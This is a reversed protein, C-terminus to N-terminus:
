CDDFIMSTSVFRAATAIGKGGMIGQCVSSHDHLTCMM